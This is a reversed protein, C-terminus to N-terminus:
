RRNHRLEYTYSKLKRKPLMKSRPTLLFSSRFQRGMWRAQSIGTPRKFMNSRGVFSFTEKLSEARPKPITVFKNQDKTQWKGQLELFEGGLIPSAWYSNFPQVWFIEYVHHRCALRLINKSGKQVWIKWEIIYLRRPCKGNTSTTDFSFAVVNEVSSWLKLTQWIVVFVCKLEENRNM